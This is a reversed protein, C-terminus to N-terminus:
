SFLFFSVVSRFFTTDIVHYEFVVNRTPPGMSQVLLVFCYWYLVLFLLCSLQDLSPKKYKRKQIDVAKRGAPKRLNIPTHATSTLQVYLVYKM